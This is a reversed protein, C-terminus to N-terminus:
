MIKQCNCLAEPNVFVRSAMLAFTLRFLGRRLARSKETQKYEPWNDQFWDFRRTLGNLLSGRELQGKFRGIESWTRVVCTELGVKATFVGGWEPVLDIHCLTEYLWEAMIYALLFTVARVPPILDVLAFVTVLCTAAALSETFDPFSRFSMHPYLEILASDGKTWGFFQKLFCAGNNWYPHHVVARPAPVFSRANAPDRKRYLHDLRLCLDVDEGGGGRTFVENGHFFIEPDRKICLNATIGWPLDRTTKSAINWFSAIGARGIAFQRPTTPPPLVTSGIFGAASPFQRALSWYEKLLDPQVLVDDDLFCVYDACSEALGHNRTGGPGVNVPNFRVKVNYESAHAQELEQFVQVASKTDPNDCVICFKIACDEPAPLALIRELVDRTARFSPTVIDMSGLPAAGDFVHESFLPLVKKLAKTLFQSRALAEKQSRKRQMQRVAKSDGIISAKSFRFFAEFLLAECCDDAVKCHNGQTFAQEALLSSLVKAVGPLCSAHWCPFSPFGAFSEDLLAICMTKNVSLADLAKKLPSRMRADDTLMVAWELDSSYTAVHVILEAVQQPRNSGSFKIVTIGSADMKLTTGLLKEVKDWLESAAEPVSFYLRPAIGTEKPAATANSDRKLGVRDLSLTLEKLSCILADPDSLSSSVVPVLLGVRRTSESNKTAEM